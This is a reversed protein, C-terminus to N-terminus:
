PRARMGLEAWYPALDVPQREGASKKAAVAVALSRRATAGDVIPRSHGELCDLFHAMEQVYMENPDSPAQVVRWERREGQYLSVTGAVLDAKIMGVEGILECWRQPPQQLYDLHISVVQPHPYSLLIEAMDETDIELSSFKGGVCYAREPLGFFWLAYDIEHISDLIVGGGLDQHAGYGQRYDEWPHRRPLYEGVHLRASALHGILGQDLWDKAQQLVPNFRQNYGVLLVLGRSRVLDLLGDVGDLSHSLPSRWM